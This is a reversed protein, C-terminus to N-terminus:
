VLIKGVGSSDVPLHFSIEAGHITFSLIFVSSIYLRAILHFNISTPNFM